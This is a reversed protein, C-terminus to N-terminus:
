PCGPGVSKTYSDKSATATACIQDVTGTTATATASTYFTVTVNSVDGGKLNAVDGTLETATTDANSALEAAAQSAANSAATDVAGHRANTQINNYVPIAIAILIGMIVIVIILEILSFGRERDRQDAPLDIVPHLEAM